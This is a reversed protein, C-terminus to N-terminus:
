AAVPESLRAVAVQTPHEGRAVAAADVPNLHGRMGRLEVDHLAELAETRTGRKLRELDQQLPHQGRQLLEREAHTLEGRHGRAIVHGLEIGAAHVAEDRDRLDAAAQEAAQRASEADNAQREDYAETDRDREIVEIAAKPLPVVALDEPIAWDAEYPYCADGLCPILAAVVAGAQERRATPERLLEEAAAQAEVYGATAADAEVRVGRLL